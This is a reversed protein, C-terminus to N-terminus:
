RSTTDLCEFDKESHLFREVFQENVIGVTPSTSTDSSNFDCGELIPVGLTHIFDPGVVNWRVTRSSGNAVDPLKGDVKMDSNNSWGSGLREEMITVDEVGPLARLRAILDRYFANTEALSKTNPKIGFVVLDKVNMGLPTDGVNSLTRTLLGGGVLLVMCFMMQFVIIARSTQSKATNAHARANGSKLVSATRTVRDPPM